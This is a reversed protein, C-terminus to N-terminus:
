YWYALILLSTDIINVVGTVIKVIGIIIKVNIWTNTKIM